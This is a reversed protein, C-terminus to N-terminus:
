MWLTNCTIDLELLWVLCHSGLWKKGMLFLRKVWKKRFYKIQIFILSSVSLYLSGLIITKLYNIINWYINRLKLSCFIIHRCIFYFYFYNWVYGSLIFLFYVLNWNTFILYKKSCPNNILDMPVFNVTLFKFDFVTDSITRTKIVTDNGYSKERLTKSGKIAWFAKLFSQVQHNVM